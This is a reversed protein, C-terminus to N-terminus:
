TTRFLRLPDTSPRDLTPSRCHILARSQGQQRPHPNEGKWDHPLECAEETSLSPPTAPGLTVAAMDFATTQGSRTKWPHWANSLTTASIDGLPFKQLSVDQYKPNNGQLPTQPRLRAASTRDQLSKAVRPLARTRDQQLAFLCSERSSLPARSVCHARRWLAPEMGAVLHPAPSVDSNADM